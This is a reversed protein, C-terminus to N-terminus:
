REPRRNWWPRRENAIRCNLRYIIPDLGGCLCYLMFVAASSFILCAGVAASEIHILGVVFLAIPIYLAFALFWVRSFCHLKHAADEIDEEGLMLRIIAIVIKERRIRNWVLTM